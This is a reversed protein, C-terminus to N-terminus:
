PNDFVHSDYIHDVQSSITRPIKYNPFHLADYTRLNFLYLIFSIPHLRLEGSLHVGSHPLPKLNLFAM